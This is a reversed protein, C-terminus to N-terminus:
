TGVRGVLGWRLLRVRVVGTLLGGVLRPVKDLDMYGVAVVWMLLMRLSVLIGIARVIVLHLDGNNRSLLCRKWRVVWVQVRVQVLVLMQQM